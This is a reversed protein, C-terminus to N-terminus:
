RLALLTVSSTKMDPLFGFLNWRECQWGFLWRLIIQKTSDVRPLSPQRRVDESGRAFGLWAGIDKRLIRRDHPFVQSHSCRFTVPPSDQICSEMALPKSTATVLPNYMRSIYGLRHEAANMRSHELPLPRMTPVNESANNTAFAYLPYSRPRMAMWRIRSLTFLSFLSRDPLTSITKSQRLASFRTVFRGRYQM